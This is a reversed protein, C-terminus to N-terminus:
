LSEKEDRTDRGNVYADEDLGVYFCNPQTGFGPRLMATPGAALRKSIESKADQIDGAVRAGAPCTDVCAPTHGERIRHECLNCKDAIGKQPDGGFLRVPDQYRVRYPCLRVCNGCGICREQDILVLGDPRVYTARKDYLIRTGDPMEFNVRVPDVPCDAICPPNSCQNCLWPLFSRKDGNEHYKVSNRFVGLRVDNETKCAVSCAHCGTCRNLDVLFGWRISSGVLEQQARAGRPWVAGAVALGVGVGLGVAATKKLIHRREVQVPKDKKM